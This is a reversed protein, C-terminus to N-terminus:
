GGREGGALGRLASRLARRSEADETRELLAALRGRWEHRLDAALREGVRGDIEGARAALGALADLVALQHDVETHRAAVLPLREAKAAPYDTGGVLEHPERGFVGALLTVTRESPVSIAGELHSLGVRSLAVREALRAQTWGLDARLKAVRRGFSEAAIHLPKASPEAPPRYLATM